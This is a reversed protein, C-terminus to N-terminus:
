GIYNERVMRTPHLMDRIAIEADRQLLDLAWALNAREAYKWGNCYLNYIRGVKTVVYVGQTQDCRLRTIENPNQKRLETFTAKLM